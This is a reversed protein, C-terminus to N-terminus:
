FYKKHDNTEDYHWKRHCNACLIICKAIENMITKVSYGLGSLQSILFKKNHIHHFDLAAPHKEQCVICGKQSKFDQIIKTINRKRVNIQKNRFQKNKEYWIKHYKQQYKKYTEKCKYPM